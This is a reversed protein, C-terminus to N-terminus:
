HTLNTNPLAHSSNKAIIPDDSLSRPPFIILFLFFIFVNQPARSVTTIHRTPTPFHIPLQIQSSQTPGLPGLARPPGWFLGSKSTAWIPFVIALNGGPRDAPWSGQAQPLLHPGRPAPIVPRSPGHSGFFPRSVRPFMQRSIPFFIGSFHFCKTPGQFRNHHTQNTNPLTHSNFKPLNPRGWPDSPGRPGWFLGSKSTAWIPFIIALNDGPRDAPRSGQAQPLLHSRTPCSYGAPFTRPLSFHGSFVHFCKGQFQSFFARFTSVNQPARSVTTIHRTPTPSHITVEGLGLIM